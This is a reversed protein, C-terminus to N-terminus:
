LLVFGKACALFVCHAVFIVAGDCKEVRPSGVLGQRDRGPVSDPIAIDGDPEIRERRPKRAPAPASAPQTPEREPACSAASAVASPKRTNRARAALAPGPGSRRRLRPSSSRRRKILSNGSAVAM